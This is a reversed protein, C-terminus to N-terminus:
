EPKDQPIKAKFRETVEVWASSGDPFPCDRSVEIAYYIYGDRKTQAKIRGERHAKEYDVYDSESVTTITTVDAVASEPASDGFKRSENDPIGLFLESSLQEPAPLEHLTLRMPFLNKTGRESTHLVRAHARFDTFFEQKGAQQTAKEMRTFEESTVYHTFGASRLGAVTNYEWPRPLFRVQQPLFAITAPYQEPYAPDVLAVRSGYGIVADPPLQQRIYDFFDERHRHNRSSEVLGDRIKWLETATERLFGIAFIFGILLAWRGGGILRSRGIREAIISVTAVASLCVGCHWALLYRSAEKTACGLVIFYAWFSIACWFWSWQSKWAAIIIGALSLGGLLLYPSRDIMKWYFPFSSSSDGDSPGPGTAKTIELSLADALAGPQMLAPLQILLFTGLGLLTTKLLARRRPKREPIRAAFAALFFPWWLVGIYKGGITLGLGLGLVLWSSARNEPGALALGLLCVSLGAMMIPDEKFFRAVSFVEPHALLLVGLVVGWLPGRVMTIAATFLACAFAMAVVSVHRGAMVVAHPSDVNGGLALVGDVLHLMMLPHNFNREGHQIQLIKGGEDAHHHWSFNLDRSFLYCGSAFVVIALLWTALTNKRNGSRERLGTVAEKSDRPPGDSDAPQTTSASAM